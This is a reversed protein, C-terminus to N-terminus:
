VEADIWGRKIAELLIQGSTRVGLALRIRHQMSYISAPTTSMEIAIEQPTLYRAMLKIVQMQRRNLPNSNQDANSALLIRTASPSLYPEGQMITELATPLLYTLRDSKSLFGLVGLTSFEEIRDATLTNALLLIKIVPYTRKLHTLGHVLAKIGLSDSIIVIDIQAKNLNNLFENISTYEGVMQMVPYRNIIERIGVRAAESTEVVVLQM